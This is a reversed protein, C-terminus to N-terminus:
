RWDSPPAPLEAKLEEMIPLASKREYDADLDLLLRYLLSPMTRHNRNPWHLRVVAVQYPQERRAARWLAGELTIGTRQLSSLGINFTVFGGHAEGIERMTAAVDAWSPGSAEATYAAPM